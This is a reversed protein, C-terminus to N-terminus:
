KELKKIIRHTTEVPNDARLISGSVAVGAIGTEMLQKVDEEEIGGIAVIPISIGEKECQKMISRYGELGLVPSLEKKTETFRYPGLGIYDVGDSVLQRIDEMRNATGGIVYGDRLMRRAEKISMDKKGLHVGDACADRTLEVHDDIILMANYNRCLSLLEMAMMYREAETAEKARLQIWRCGGELALRAGEVESYKETRHTIFQLM